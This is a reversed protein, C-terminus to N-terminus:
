GVMPTDKESHQEEIDTNIFVKLWSGSKEVVVMERGIEVKTVREAGNDPSIYLGTIRLATARPGAVPKVDQQPKKDAHAASIICCLAVTFALARFVHIRSN